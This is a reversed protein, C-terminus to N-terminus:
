PDSIEFSKATILLYESQLSSYCTGALLLKPIQTYVWVCFKLEKCMVDLHQSSIGWSPILPLLRIGWDELAESCVIGVLCHAM